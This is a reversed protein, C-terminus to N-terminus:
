PLSHLGKILNKIMENENSYEIVKDVLERLHTNKVKKNILLIVKKKLGLAHGIELLMGESKEESNKIAILVDTKEIKNLTSLYIGKKDKPKNNDLAPCYVRHGLNELELCINKLLVLLKNKDEGTFKYALQINM